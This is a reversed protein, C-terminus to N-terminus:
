VYILVFVFVSVFVPSGALPARPAEEYTDEGTENRTENENYNVNLKFGVLFCRNKTTCVEPLTYRFCIKICFSIKVDFFGQSRWFRGFIM